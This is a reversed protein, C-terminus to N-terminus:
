LEMNSEYRSSSWISPWNGVAASKDGHMRFLLILRKWNLLKFGSVNTVTLAGCTEESLCELADSKEAM